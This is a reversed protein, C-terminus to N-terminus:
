STGGIYRIEIEAGNNAVAFQWHTGLQMTSEVLLSAIHLMGDMSSYWGRKYGDVWFQWGTSTYLGFTQGSTMYWYTYGDGPNNQDAPGCEGSFQLSQAIAIGTVYEGTDPDIVIGRRIEGNISTYYNQLLDISDQVSEISSGYDYSEVVGQATTEILTSINEQFTGFESRALYLSSYEERKGDVYEIVRADGASIADGLSNATQIILSRLEQANRRVADLDTSEGGPRLIQTGDRAHSITVATQESVTEGLNQAMRFLYDRLSRMDESYRGTLMPPKETWAM